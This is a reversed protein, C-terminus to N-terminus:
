RSICEFKLKSMFRSLTVEIQKQKKKRIGKAVNATPSLPFIPGKKRKGPGRQLDSSLSFAEQSFTTTTTTTTTMMMVMMM